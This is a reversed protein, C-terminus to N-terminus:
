NPSSRSDVHLRRAPEVLRQELLEDGALPDVPMLVQEDDARGADALAPNSAGQAVLGAAVVAGHETLPQRPQELRKGERPAVASPQTASSSRAKVEKYVNSISMASTAVGRWRRVANPHSIPTIAM